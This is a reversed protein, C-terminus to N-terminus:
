VDVICSGYDFLKPAHSIGYLFPFEGNLTIMGKCGEFFINNIILTDPTIPLRLAAIFGIRYNGVLSDM